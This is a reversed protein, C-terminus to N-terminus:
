NNELHNLYEFGSIKVSSSLDALQDLKINGKLNIVANDTKGGVILLMEKIVKEKNYHVYFVVNNDKERVTMLEVYKGSSIHPKLEDFFNVTKGQYSDEMSIIQIKRIMGKLNQLDKEDDGLAALIEFMEGQISVTTFGETDQYKHILDEVFDQAGSFLPIIAIAILILVKKM